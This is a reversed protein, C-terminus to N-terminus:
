ATFYQRNQVLTYIIFADIAISIISQVPVQGILILNLVASIAALAIGLQRGIEKLNLVQIGAYIQLAGVLLTVIGLVVFFGSLVSLGVLGFLVGLAGGVLLLVAVATVTGPRGGPVPAGGAPPPSYQAM